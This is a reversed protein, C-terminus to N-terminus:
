IEGAFPKLLMDDKAVASIEKILERAKKFDFEEYLV